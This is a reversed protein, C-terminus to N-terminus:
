NVKTVITKVTGKLVITPLKAATSESAPSMKGQVTMMLDNTKVLCKDLNVSWPGGGTMSFEM